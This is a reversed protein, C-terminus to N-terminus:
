GRRPDLRAPALVELNIEAAKEAEIWFGRAQWRGDVQYWIIQAVPYLAEAIDTPSPAEPGNPHSHYIGVLELGAAEIRQFARWQARPEMRFRLPSREANPIGITMEVLGNKGALLGCAELPACRRAHRRMAQWHEVSLILKEAM